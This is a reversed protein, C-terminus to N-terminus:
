FVVTGFDAQLKEQFGKVVRMALRLSEQELPTRTALTLLKDYPRGSAAQRLQHDLLLETLAEHAAKVTEAYERTVVGQHVLRTLREGTGLAGIGAGLAHIRAGDALIRLGNRKLDVKGRRDDDKETVLRNFLGLPPRGEADDEVMMALLRPRRAVAALVHARLDQVLGEDGYLLDFDLVVNSWRAAKPTPHETIHDLQQRWESLSKHFMPNRAMIEGPCLSYGVEALRENLRAAFDHFWHRAAGDRAVGDDLILGNDQDPNLFMERRGGSGMILLAYPTPPPGLGDLSMEELTLEVCRRQLALHVDSLGRVAASARHNVERLDAAVEASRRYLGALDAITTARAVAAPLSERRTMLARLIDTQSVMGLPRDDATVLVYKLGQEHQLQEVEWLPTDPGVQVPRECAVAMIDDEARAGGLLTARALGAYTVVGVLRGDNGTVVLSGIRRQDMLTFAEALTIDPGCGVVPARMAARAPVVLADPVTRQALVQQRIRRALQRQVLRFLPPCREELQALEVGPVTLVTLATAAAASLVHPMADLYASLGVLEGPGAEGRVGDRNSLSVRGAVVLHVVGPQAEGERFLEEGPSFARLELCPAVAQWDAGELDSVRDLADRIRPDVPAGPKTAGSM